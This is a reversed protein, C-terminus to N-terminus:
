QQAFWASHQLGRDHCLYCRSWRGGRDEPDEFQKQDFQEHHPEWDTDSSSETTGRVARTASLAIASKSKLRTRCSLGSFLSSRRMAREGNCKSSLSDAPVSM